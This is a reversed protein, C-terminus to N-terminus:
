MTALQTSGEKLVNVSLPFDQLYLLDLWHIVFIKLCVEFTIFLPLIYTKTTKGYIGTKARSM